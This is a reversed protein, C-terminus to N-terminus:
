LYADYNIRNTIEKYLKNTFSDFIKKHRNAQLDYIDDDNEIKNRVAYYYEYEDKLGLDSSINELKYQYDDDIGMFFENKFDKLTPIEIKLIYNKINNLEYKVVICEEDEENPFDFFNIPYIKYKNSLKDGDITLRCSIPHDLNDKSTIHFRKNRTFSIYNWYRKNELNYTKMLNELSEVDRHTTLTNDKLIYYLSILNTCHYLIGVQKGEFLKFNIIM